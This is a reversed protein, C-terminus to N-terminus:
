LLAFESGIFIHQPTGCNPGLNNIKYIFSITFTDFIKLNTNNASSVFKNEVLLSMTLKLTVIQLSNIFSSFHNARFLNDNFM